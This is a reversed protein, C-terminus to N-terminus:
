RHDSGTQRLRERGPCRLLTQVDSGWGKIQIDSYVALDEVLRLALGLIAEGNAAISLLRRAKELFFEPLLGRAGSLDVV